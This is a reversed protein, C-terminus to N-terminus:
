RLTEDQASRLKKRLENYHKDGPVVPTAEDPLMDWGTSDSIV